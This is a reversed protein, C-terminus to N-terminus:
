MVPLKYMDYNVSLYRMSIIDVVEYQVYRVTSINKM